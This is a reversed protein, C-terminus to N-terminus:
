KNSSHLIYSLLYECMLSYNEESKIKLFVDQDIFTDQFAPTSQKHKLFKDMLKELKPTQEVPKSELCNENLHSTSHQPDNPPSYEKCNHVESTACQLERKINIMSNYDLSQHHKSPSDSISDKENPVKPSWLCDSDLTRVMGSESVMRRHRIAKFKEPSQQLQIALVDRDNIM